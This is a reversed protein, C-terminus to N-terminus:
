CSSLHHHELLLVLSVGVPVFVPDFEKGLPEVQRVTLDVFPGPVPAFFFGETQRGTALLLVLLQSLAVKSNERM